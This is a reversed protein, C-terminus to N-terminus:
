WGCSHGHYYRPACPGYYRHIIPPPCYSSEYSYYRRPSSYYRPGYGYGYYDQSSGIASGALAGLVGGIAAGELPRCTANGILAGALAGSAGGIVSGVRENPGAYPNVCSSLALTVGLSLLASLRHLTKM